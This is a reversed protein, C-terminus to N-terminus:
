EKALRYQSGSETEVISGGTAGKQVPTTIIYAGDEFYPSNSIFGYISGEPTQGWAAIIPLDATNKPGAGEKPIDGLLESAPAPAQMNSLFFPLDSQEGEGQNGQSESAERDNDDNEKGGFLRSFFGKPKGKRNLELEEESQGFSTTTTATSAEDNAGSIKSNLKDLKATGEVFSKAVKDMYSAPEQQSAGSESTEFTKRALEDAAAQKLEQARKLAAEAVQRKTIAESKLRELQVDDLSTNIPDTNDKNPTGFAPSQGPLTSFPRTTSKQQRGDSPSAGFPSNTLPPTSGPADSMNKQPAESNPIGPGQTTETTRFPAMTSFSQGQNTASSPSAPPINSPPPPSPNQDAKTTINSSTPSLGVSQPFSPNTTSASATSGQTPPFVPGQSSQSSNIPRESANLGQSISNDVSPKSDINNASSLSSIYSGFPSSVPSSLKTEKSSKEAPASKQSSAPTTFGASPARQNSPSTASNSSVSEDVTRSPEWSGFPNVPVNPASQKSQRRNREEQARLLQAAKNREIDEAKRKAAAAAERREKQQREREQAALEIQERQRRATEEAKRKAEAAAKARAQERAQLQEQAIRAQEERKQQAEMERKRAAEEKKRNAAEMAKKLDEAAKEQREKARAAAEARKAEEEAARKKAEDAIRKKRAEEEEKEKKAAEERRKSEESAREKITNFYAKKQEERAAEEEKLKAEAEARKRAAEQGRMMAINWSDSPSTGESSGRFGSNDQPGQINQSIQQNRMKAGEFISQKAAQLKEERQDSIM